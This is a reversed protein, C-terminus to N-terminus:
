EAELNRFHAIEEADMAAQQEPTRQQGAHAFACYLVVLSFACLIILAVLIEIM